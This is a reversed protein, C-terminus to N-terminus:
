LQNVYNVDVRFFELNYAPLYDIYKKIGEIVGFEDEYVERFFGTEHYHVDITRPVVKAGSTAAILQEAGEM